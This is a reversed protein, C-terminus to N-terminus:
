RRRRGVLGRFAGLAASAITAAARMAGVLARQWRLTHVVARTLATSSRPPEARVLQMYGSLKAEAPSAFEAEREEPM